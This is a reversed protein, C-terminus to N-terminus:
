SCLKKYTSWAETFHNLFFFSRTEGERSTGLLCRSKGGWLFVHGEKEEFGATRDRSRTWGGEGERFDMQEQRRRKAEPERCHWGMDGSSLDSHKLLTLTDATREAKSVGCGADAVHQHMLRCCAERRGTSMRSRRWSRAEATRVEEFFTRPGRLSHSELRHEWPMNDKLVPRTVAQCPLKQHVCVSGRQISFESCAPTHRMVRIEMTRSERTTSIKVFAQPIITSEKREGPLVQYFYISMDYWTM